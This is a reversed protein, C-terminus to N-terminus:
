FSSVLVGTLLAVTIGRYYSCLFGTVILLPASCYWATFAFCRLAIIVGSQQIVSFVHKKGMFHLYEALFILSYSKFYSNKSRTNLYALGFNFGTFYYHFKAYNLIM